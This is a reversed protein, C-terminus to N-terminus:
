LISQVGGAGVVVDREEVGEAGDEPLCLVACRLTARRDRLIADVLELARAAATVPGTHPGAAGFVRARPLRTGELLRATDDVPRGTAVVVVAGACRAAVEAATDGAVADVVVVDSGAADSWGGASVRPEYRLPGAAGVLDDALGDPSGLLVLEALDLQALLLAAAQGAATTTTCTVKRRM